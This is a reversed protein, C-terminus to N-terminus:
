RNTLLLRQDYQLINMIVYQGPAPAAKRAKQVRGSQIRNLVTKSKKSPTGIDLEDESGNEDDDGDENILKRPTTKGRPKKM